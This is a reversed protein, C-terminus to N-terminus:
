YTRTSEYPIFIKMWYCNSIDCMQYLKVDIHNCHHVNEKM